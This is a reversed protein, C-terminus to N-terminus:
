LGREETVHEDFEEGVVRMFLSADSEWGCLCTLRWGKAFNDLTVDRVGHEREQVAQQKNQRSM